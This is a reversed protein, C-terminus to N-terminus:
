LIKVVSGGIWMDSLEELKICNKNLFRGAGSEGNTFVCMDRGCLGDWYVM